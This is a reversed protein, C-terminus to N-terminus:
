ENKIQESQQSLTRLTEVVGRPEFAFMVVVDLEMSISHLNYHLNMCICAIELLVRTSTTFTIALLMFSASIYVAVSTYCPLFYMCLM